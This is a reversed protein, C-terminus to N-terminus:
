KLEGRPVIKDIFGHELQFESRQFGEPLATRLTEEIVRPGAFAILAGPEALIVDGLAAFSATVGGTTPDTLVSICIGGKRDMRELKAPYPEKDVFELLDVPFLDKWREDFSGADVLSDVRARGSLPEHRGCHPCVNWNKELEKQFVTQNCKKCKTWLGEPMD